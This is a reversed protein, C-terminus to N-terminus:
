VDLLKAKILKKKPAALTLKMENQDFLNFNDM